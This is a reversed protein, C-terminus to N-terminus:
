NPYNALENSYGGYSFGGITLRNPDAIGDTVLRDVGALIDRGPRTLIEFRMESIFDDGYGISGRYNPEFVLWGETAAMPAWTLWNAHFLNLSVDAPGGHIFVFLPLNKQEYRGQHIIYFAKSRGIITKM